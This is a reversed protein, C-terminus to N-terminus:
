RASDESRVFGSACQHVLQQLLGANMPQESASVECLLRRADETSSSPPVVFLVADRSRTGVLYITDSFVLRYPDLSVMENRRIVRSPAPLWASPDYVIRHVPGIWLGYVALLDPLELSLDLSKPWWAGDIAARTQDRDCLALRTASSPPSSLHAV